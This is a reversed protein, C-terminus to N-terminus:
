FLSIIFTFYYFYVEIIEVPHTMNRVPRWYNEARFFDVQRWTEINSLNKERLYNILETELKQIATNEKRLFEAEEITADLM